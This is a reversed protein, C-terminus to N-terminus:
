RNRGRNRANNEMPDTVPIQTEWFVRNRHGERVHDHFNRDVPVHLGAGKRLTKEWEQVPAELGAQALVQGKLGFRDPQVVFLGGKGRIGEVPAIARADSAVGYVFRGLFPESWALRRLKEEGKQLAAADKDFLLVLPQNDCAAVDLALRVNAVKPLEPVENPATQRNDYADAIRNMTDALQAPGSFLHGTERGPRTLPRRGDPSLICFLTNELAGSGGVWISKLFDAEDKNEYTTLRICTFRRAAAIVEPQSLFSRDM